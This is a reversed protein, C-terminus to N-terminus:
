PNLSPTEPAIVSNEPSTGSSDPSPVTSNKKTEDANLGSLQMAQAGLEILTSKKTELWEERTAAPDVVTAALIAAHFQIAASPDDTRLADTFETNLAVLQAASLARLTITRNWPEYFLPIGPRDFEALTM